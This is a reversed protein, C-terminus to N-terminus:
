YIKPYSVQLSSAGRLSGYQALFSTPAQEWLWVGPVAGTLTQSLSAGATSQRALQARDIIRVDATVSREPAGISKGTVLVRDLVNVDRAGVGNGTSARAAPALVIQDAGAIIPSVAAGD